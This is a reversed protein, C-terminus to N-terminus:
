LADIGTQCPHLGEVVSSATNSSRRRPRQYFPGSDSQEERRSKKTIKKKIIIMGVILQTCLTHGKRNQHSREPNCM